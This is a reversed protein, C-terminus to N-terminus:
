TEHVVVATQFDVTRKQVNNKVILAMGPLRKDSGGRLERRVSSPQRPQAMEKTIQVIAAQRFRKETKRKHMQGIIREEAGWHYDIKSM